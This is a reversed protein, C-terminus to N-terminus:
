GGIPLGPDRTRPVSTGSRQTATGPSRPARRSCRRRVSAATRDSSRGRTPRTSQSADPVIPRGRRDGCRDRREPRERRLSASRAASEPAWALPGCRLRSARWGPELAPGPESAGPAPLWQGQRPPAALRGGGLPLLLKLPLLLRSPDYTLEARRNRGVPRLQARLLFLRIGIEFVRSVRVSYTAARLAAIAWSSLARIAPASGPHTRIGHSSNGSASVAAPPVVLWNMAVFHRQRQRTSLRCGSRESAEARSASAPSSQPFLPGSEHMLAPLWPARPIIRLSDNRCFVSEAAARTITETAAAAWVGGTAGAAPVAGDRESPSKTYARSRCSGM